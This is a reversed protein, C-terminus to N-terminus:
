RDKEAEILKITERLRQAAAELANAAQRLARLPDTPKSKARHKRAREAPTMAVRGLPPRGM